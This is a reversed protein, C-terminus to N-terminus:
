EVRAHIYRNLMGFLGELAPPAGGFTPNAGGTLLTTEPCAMPMGGALPITALKEASRAAFVTYNYIMQVRQAKITEQSGSVKYSCTSIVNMKMEVCVVLYEHRVSNYAVAASYREPQTGGTNQSILFPVGLRRTYAETAARSDGNGMGQLLLCTTLIVLLMRRAAM